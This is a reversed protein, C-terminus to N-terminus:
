EGELVWGRSHVTRVVLGLPYIRKRLRTIHVRVANSTPPTDGWGAAEISRADVVEGFRESFVRAMSEETDSLAAWKGRYLIRGDGKM